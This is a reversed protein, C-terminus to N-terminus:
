FVKNYQFNDEIFIKGKDEKFMEYISFHKEQWMKYLDLAQVWGQKYKGDGVRGINLAQDTLIFILPTGPKVTSEVVFAFNSIIYDTVDVGILESLQVLCKSLGNSYWSGQFDYRRGSVTQNFKLIPFGTTKNDVVYIRHQNHSVRITDILAKCMVGDIEFYCAFQYIIDVGEAESYVWATFPHELMSIAAGQRVRVGDENVHGVVALKENDSLIIMGKADILEEWYEAALGSKCLSQFRTDDNATANKKKTWHRNMYYNHYDMAILAQEPYSYVAKYQDPNEGETVMNSTVLDFMQRLISLETESPKKYMKSMFYISEFYEKGFSIYRDVATGVVFHAKEEYYKDSKILSDKEDIFKEIGNEVLVKLLSQNLYPCNEYEKIKEPTNRYVMFTRKKNLSFKIKIVRIKVGPNEKNYEYDGFFPKIIDANDDEIWKYKVMADQITQAPNIYDFKRRQKRVFTFEIHFPPSLGRILSLFMDRHKEWEEKTNRRWRQTARSAIIAHSDELMIQSNKSSPVNGSIFIEM